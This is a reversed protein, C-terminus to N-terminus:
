DTLIFTVTTQYQISVGHEYINLNNVIYSGTGTDKRLARKSMFFRPEDSDVIVLRTYYQGGCRYKNGLLM